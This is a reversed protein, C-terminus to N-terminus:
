LDWLASQWLGHLTLLMCGVMKTKWPYNGAGHVSFTVV